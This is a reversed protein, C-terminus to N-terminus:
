LVKKLEKNNNEKKLEDVIVFDVKRDEKSASICKVRLKMGLKYTTGTNKGYLSMNDENYNYFDKKMDEVHVLGEILNDLQVFVGFNTVGDIIADFEEGIHSEMYEAMKMADVEREAEVSARERESSHESINVLTNEWKRIINDSLRGEFIYDKLLAHVTTDPFRRIPSTFHTYCKSALGFHGLNEPRYDAKKMCRLMLNSLINYEEKEKLEELMNQVVKPTINSKEGNINYGLTSVFKLFNNIREEDPIDHVRYIFPLEMNTIFTAVAENAVIMFDEILKEGVGRERLKVEIVKGLEDTVVKAENQGFDIYGRKIKNKRLIQSLDNMLYLTDAFEEYGQPIVNEELVKNVKKYTMQIKSNIVSEYIETDIINGNKDIEMDCTVALRDVNPNLSCIGNSLQHPLMPIVTSALYCSTGREYADDYLSTGEKVYHSVDAIHVGLKYNGNDLIKISIADDIDKTDDGDITFIMENRLDRKGVLDEDTVSDPINNLEEKTGESFDLEFGHKYAITTIDIKPDDKHGIIKDVIAKYSNPSIQRSLRILVKLGETIGKLSGKDITIDFNKKKDDLVVKYNKGDLVVEGVLDEIKRDVIKIIKGENNKSNKSEHLEILVVDGDIAGNIDQPAIFVDQEKTIVFGFGKANLQLKGTKLHCKEFDLYKGRKTRYVLGEMELDNLVRLLEKLEDATKLNLNDNIQEITFANDKGKLMELISEKM